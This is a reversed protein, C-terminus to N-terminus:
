EGAVSALKRNLLLCNDPHILSNPKTRHYECFARFTDTTQGAAEQAFCREVFSTMIKKCELCSVIVEGGIGAAVPIYTGTQYVLGTNTNSQAQAGSQWRESYNSFENNNQNNNENRGETFRFNNGINQNNSPSQDLFNNQQHHCCLYFM